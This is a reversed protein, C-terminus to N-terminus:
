RFGDTLVKLFYFTGNGQSIGVSLEVTLICDVSVVERSNFRKISGALEEAVSFTRLLPKILLYAQYFAIAWTSCSPGPATNVGAKTHLGVGSRSQQALLASASLLECFPHSSDSQPSCISQYPFLSFSPSLCLNLYRLSHSVSPLHHALSPTRQTEMRVPCLSSTFFGSSM